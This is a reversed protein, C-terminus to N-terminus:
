QKWKVEAEGFAPYHSIVLNHDELIKVWEEAKESSINFVLKIESIKISKYKEVVRYLKDIDTEYKDEKTIMFRKMSLIREGLPLVKKQEPKNELITKQESKIATQKKLETIPKRMERKQMSVQGKDMLNVIIALLSIFLGFYLLYKDYFIISVILILIAAIAWIISLKNPKKNLVAQKELNTIKPKEKNKTKVIQKVIKNTPENQKNFLSGGLKKTAFKYIIISFVMLLLGVFFTILKLERISAVALIAGIFYGLAYVERILFSKRSFNVVLSLFVLAIGLLFIISKIFIFLLTAFFGIWFLVDLFREKEM